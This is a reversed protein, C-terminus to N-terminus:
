EARLTIAPDQTVATVTPIFSSLAAFGPAALLSWVLLSAVPAIGSATVKFIGPGVRLALGTGALYGLVAGVVGILAAKGLFLIAIRLSGYGLARLIGIEERRDRVNIMALVGIWAACVIVTVPLIFALYKEIMIRQSERTKAIVRLQTVKAEPLIEEIQTRLLDISDVKEDRCLCELAKIENIRGEEGLLRQADRLSATIRIDDDSGSEALCAAVTMTAGLLDITDGKKLQLAKAIEYGVYVTGPQIGAGQQGYVAKMPSKKESGPLVEQSAIGTLIIQRGQWAVKKQLAALLHTYSINEKAAFRQVYEEPMTQESYGQAWFREMDTEKPVIRLNFGMDRMLRTTERESAEGTTFFGVFLAVATAVALLSLLFNLKRHSIEAFILRVVSM